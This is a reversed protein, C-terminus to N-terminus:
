RSLFSKLNFRKAKKRGAESIQLREEHVFDNRFGDSVCYLYFLYSRPGYRLNRIRKGGGVGVGRRNLEPGRAERKPWIFRLPFFNPGYSM